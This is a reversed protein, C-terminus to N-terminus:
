GLWTVRVRVRLRVPRVSCGNAKQVCADLHELKKNLKQSTDYLQQNHM